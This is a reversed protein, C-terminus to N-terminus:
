DNIEPYDPSPASEPTPIAGPADPPKPARFGRVQQLLEREFREQFVIMRGLQEATLIGQLKKFFNKKETEFDDKMKMILEIKNQMINDSKNDQDLYEKLDTVESEIQERISKTNKRFKSFASIFLDNQDDGLDLVELLKLLRLSELNKKHLGMGNHRPDGKGRGMRGQANVTSGIVAIMLLLLITSILFRKM